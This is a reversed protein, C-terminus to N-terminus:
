LKGQHFERMDVFRIKDYHKDFSNPRFIVIASAFPATTKSDGFKVRGRLFLIESADKYIIDHWYSRDTSSVILCVVTAGREASEKAKVLWDKTHGGYPPNMFVVENDWSKSLGDDKLTYYKDCKHNEDTACPDLTFHYLSDLYEFLKRPTAWENTKSSVMQKILAMIKYELINGAIIIKVNM